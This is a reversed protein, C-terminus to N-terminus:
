KQSSELEELTDIDLSSKTDMHFPITDKLLLTKNNMFEEIKLFYMAGNPSLVKPMKQRNSFMYDSIPELKEGKVLLWKLCENEKEVVSILSSSKSDVLAKFAKSIHTKNRLPSTPQLLAFYEYSLLEDRDMGSFIDHIVDLMEATDSALSPPREHFSIKYGKSLDSIEKSDSSVIIKKFIKSEIAAEITHSILPKGNFPYLNKRPIGKSGIRAPIIALVNKTM